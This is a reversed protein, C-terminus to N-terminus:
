LVPILFLDYVKRIIITERTLKVQSCWRTFFRLQGHCATLDNMTACVLFLKMVITDYVGPVDPCLECRLSCHSSTEDTGDQM